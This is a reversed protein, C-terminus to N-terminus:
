CPSDKKQSQSIHSAWAPAPMNVKRHLEQELRNSFCVRLRNYAPSRDREGLKRGVLWDCYTGKASISMLCKKFLDKTLRPTKPSYQTVVMRRYLWFCISLNLIGWLRMYEPDRGFAELCLDLYSCLMTVDDETITQALVQAAISPAAPVEVCGAKWVRLVQSMSLLPATPSRRIMDYGVFPCTKRICALAPISGELGRLIDDPRMRALQSNLRVFEEGMEAMNQFYHIRIDTYGEKLGSILFSQRRHQGDILYMIKGIVGLTVIGPWVGGDNKMTEALARVKENEHVQRQFPPAIWHMAIEPTVLITDVVTRTAKESPSKPPVIALTTKM